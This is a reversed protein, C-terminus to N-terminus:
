ESGIEDDDDNILEYTVTCIFVILSTVTLLVSLCLHVLMQGQFYPVLYSLVFPAILFLLVSVNSVIYSKAKKSSKALFVVVVVLRTNIHSGLLKALLFL